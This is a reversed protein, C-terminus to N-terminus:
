SIRGKGIPWGIPKPKAPRSEIRASCESGQAMALAFDALENAFLAPLASDTFQPGPNACSYGLLNSVFPVLSNDLKAMTPSELAFEAGKQVLTATAKNSSIIAKMNM